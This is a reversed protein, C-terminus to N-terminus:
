DAELLARLDDPLPMPRLAGVNAGGTNGPPVWVRSFLLAAPLRLLQGIVERADRRKWGVRLMRLHVGAHALAHRQALIHARELLAFAQDFAGAREHARAADLAQALAARVAPKM